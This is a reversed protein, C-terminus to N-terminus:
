NKCSKVWRFWTSSARHNRSPYVLVLFVELALTFPSKTTSQKTALKKAAFCAVSFSDM